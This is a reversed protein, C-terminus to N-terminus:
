DDDLMEFHGVSFSDSECNHITGAVADWIDKSNGLSKTSGGVLDSGPHDVKKGRVYKLKKAEAALVKDYPYFVRNETFALKAQVPVEDTRDLSLLDVSFGKDELQQKLYHSNYQDFTIKVINFGKAKLPLILKDLVAHYKIEGNKLMAADSRSRPDIWGIADIMMLPKVVYKDEEDIESISAYDDKDQDVIDQLEFNDLEMKVSDFAHGLAFGLRDKNKSLDFHMCYASDVNDPLFWDAWVGNGRYGNAKCDPYDRCAYIDDGITRNQYVPCARCTECVNNEIFEPDNWFSEIIGMPMAGFDRMTRRYNRALAHKFDEKSLNPNVDWTAMQVSYGDERNKLEEVKHMVFDDDYRPTTIGIMKYHDPFRTQCSGYAAEWCDEAKSASEENADKELFFALEDGVWQITNYGLWGYAQSNGSLARVKKIFRVTNGTPDDYKGHFWPCNELMGTFEVFFVNRAQPENRAVNVFYIPSGPSLGYYQQPKYMCLCRYIGYLHIIASLFDKGSGKGLLLLVERINENAVNKAMELVKPRCGTRGNWKLNLFSKDCIFDEIGVPEEEWISEKKTSGLGSALEKFIDLHYSPDKRM